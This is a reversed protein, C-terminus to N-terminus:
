VMRYLPSAKRIWFSDLTSFSFSASEAFFLVVISLFFFLFSIKPLARLCIQFDESTKCVEASPASSFPLRIALACDTAVDEFPPSLGVSLLTLSQMRGV